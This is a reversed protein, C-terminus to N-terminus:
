CTRTDKHNVQVYKVDQVLTEITLKSYTVAPQSVDTMRFINNKKLLSIKFNMHGLGFLMKLQRVGFPILSIVLNRRPKLWRRSCLNLMGKLVAEIREAQTSIIYSSKAM